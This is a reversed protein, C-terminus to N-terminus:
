NLNMFNDTKLMLVHRSISATFKSYLQFNYREDLTM